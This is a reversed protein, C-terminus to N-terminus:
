LALLVLATMNDAGLAEDALRCLRTAIQGADTGASLERAIIAEHDEGLCDPIGDSCLLLRDGSRLCLSQIDPELPRCSISGESDFFFSGVSQTLAGLSGIDATRPDRGAKLLETRVNQDVNMQELAGGRWLYIRSDGLHAYTLRDDDVICLVATSAPPHTAPGLSGVFVPQKLFAFIRANADELIAQLATKVWDQSFVGRHTRLIEGLPGEWAARTAERVQTSAIEGSGVDATSVGDAVLLLGRRSAEDYGLFWADQNVPMHQSKLRGIETAAGMSVTAPRQGKPAARSRLDAMLETCSPYRNAPPRSLARGLAAWIGHPLDPRFTRPLPLADPSFPLRGTILSWCLLALSYQDAAAGGRSTGEAVEPASFPGAERGFEEEISGLAQPEELGIEGDPSVSFMAPSMSRFALKAQHVKEFLVALAGALALAFYPLGEERRLVWELSQGPAPRLALAQRQEDRMRAVPAAVGPVAFAAALSGLPQEAPLELLRFSRGDAARGERTVGLRAPLDTAPGLTLLLNELRLETGPELPSFHKAKRETM